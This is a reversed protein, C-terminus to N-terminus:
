SYRLTTAPNIRSVIFSPAILMVMCAAFSGLNLWVINVFSLEIPVQSVYYTEVPLKIIGYKLQLFCLAIGTINGWLLGTLILYSGNFLFIEQIIKNRCGLAKLVGIMNTNELILVILASVMAISSVILMLTIIINANTDQLKLWSFMAPKIMEVSESMLGAGLIPEIMTTDVREVDKYNVCSVEIGAARNRAWFNLSQLQKIDV